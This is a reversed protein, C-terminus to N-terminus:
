RWIRHEEHISESGDDDEHLYWKIGDPIECVRVSHLGSLDIVRIPDREVQEILWLNSRIAVINNLFHIKETDVVANSSYCELLRKQAEVGTLHSDESFLFDIHYFSDFAEPIRKYLETLAFRNLGLGGPKVGILIKM